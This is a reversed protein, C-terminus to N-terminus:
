LDILSLEYRAGFLSFGIAITVSPAGPIEMRLRGQPRGLQLNTKIAVNAHM